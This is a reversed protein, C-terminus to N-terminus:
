VIIYFFHVTKKLSLFFNEFYKSRVLVWYKISIYKLNVFRSEVENSNSNFSSISIAEISQQKAILAHDYYNKFIQYPKDKSIDIIEIM